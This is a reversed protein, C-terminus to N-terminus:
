ICAKIVARDKVLTLNFPHIIELSELHELNPFYDNLDNPELPNQILM